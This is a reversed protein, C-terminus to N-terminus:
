ACLGPRFDYRFSNVILMLVTSLSNFDPFDFDCKSGFVSSLDFSMYLSFDSADARTDAGSKSSAFRLTHPQTFGFTTPPQRTPTSHQTTVPRTSNRQGVM